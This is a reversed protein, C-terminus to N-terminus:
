RALQVLRALSVEDALAVALEPRSLADLACDLTEAEEVKTRATLLTVDIPDIRPRRQPPLMAHHVSLLRADALLRKVSIDPLAMWERQLAVARAVVAPPATDEPTRLLASPRGTMLALPIALALGLVVPLMWLALYPSVLWAVGGLVVGLVTHRRYLRITERSPIGGGDRRQVNWGSDRGLLIAVVDISQTLMVVPAMLGAILTEILVGWFLRLAGGCGRREPGHLVVAICGLLKPLLLLAMTGV